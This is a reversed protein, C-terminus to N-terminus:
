PRSFCDDGVCKLDFWDLVTDVNTRINHTINSASTAKFRENGFEDCWSMTIWRPSVDDLFITAGESAVGLVETWQKIAELFNQYSVTEDATGHLVHMKPRWGEYGPYGNEVVTKWEVSSKTVQGTACAESWVGVGDAAYCGFPVGAWASGAAFVDPYSGLLVNTMMAGSSTGMSFVRKEDAGYKELVYRVMSVIGLSDGGGEHSLTAPSSIDWCDDIDNPSDPFIMIYGYQDALTALQTGNFAAQATGHCWHPNVLIPPNPALTTPVYLYFTVNSPNPGFESNPIQLLPNQAAANITTTLTTLVTFFKFFSAM